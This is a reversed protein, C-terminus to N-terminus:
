ARSAAHDHDDRDRDAVVHRRGAHPRRRHARPVLDVGRPQDARRGLRAAAALLPRAARRVGPGVEHPRPDRDARHLPHRGQLARHDGVLPGQGPLQARGRLARRHHRQLAARLRHLQPRDGLRHRGRVLVGLRAQRRLHLPAHHRHRRPLRRDHPRDGEAQRHHREHLAPLAPGGCDMPECPCSAPDDPEDAVLEHWWRDRGDNWDVEGGTRRLVVAHTCARRTTRAGRRRQAEAAGHAGDRWAEDQTILVECDMDNMRDSLSDASFGGFVVTHPAGLRACALMAVPLEPVM